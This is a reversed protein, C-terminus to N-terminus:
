IPLMTRSASQHCLQSPTGGGVGALHAGLVFVREDSFRLHKCNGVAHASMLGAFDCACEGRANKALPQTVTGCAFSCRCGCDAFGVFRDVARRPRVACVGAHAGGDGRQGDQMGLRTREVTRGFLPEYQEVDAVRAGIAVSEAAHLADRDIVAVHLLKDGRSVDGVFFSASMRAAVDHRAREADLGRHSGINPAQGDHAAIPEHQAAVSEDVFNGVVLDGVENTRDSVWLYEGLLQYSHGVTM